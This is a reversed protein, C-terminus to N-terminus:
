IVYADPQYRELNSKVWDITEALGDDLDYKPEWGTTRQARENAACLREVESEKPRVRPDDSIVPIDRGTINLIKRALDGISIERNSGINIVLGATNATAVRIFGDVTDAVYNFDRTPSVNGLHVADSTLAQTIITPIVARASQRPGFTNFPRVTTVPLDFAHFFSEALKDAAIKSAAYPSQAQLPHQEDIAVTRATGYVESTSTHIIRTVDAARAAMLVNLTGEVNTQVYSRPAVYSYPIAILAALHFVSHVGNMMARVSDVDRIDGSVFQIEDRLDSTDLWGRRGEANYHVLARVRAGEAVLREALHSGIFGGAGTVLVQEGKLNM